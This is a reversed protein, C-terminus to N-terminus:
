RYINDIMRLSAFFRHFYRNVATREIRKMDAVLGDNTEKSFFRAEVPDIQHNRGLIRELVGMTKRGSLVAVIRSHLSYRAM